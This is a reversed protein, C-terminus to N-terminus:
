NPCPAGADMWTKFAAVTEQRSVPPVTRTGGPNWGWGVLADDRVHDHMAKLDKGGTVRRDKVAQCLEAASLGIFVMKTEPPPLHWNPAGPPALDGYSPPLNAQGHCSVCEMVVHGRGDPGRKVNQAHRVGADTQLPADGPIHCNQCRPHQFVVRVTEFARLGADRAAASAPQAQALSAIGGNTAAACLLLAIAFRIPRPRM